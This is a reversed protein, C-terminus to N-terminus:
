QPLTSLRADEVYLEAITRAVAVTNATPDNSTRYIGLGTLDMQLLTTKLDAAILRLSGTKEAAPGNNGRVLFDQAWAKWDTFPASVSLVLGPLTVAGNGKPAPQGPVSPLFAVKVVFPDIRVIKNTVLSPITLAFNGGIFAGTTKPLAPISAGSGAVLATTSPRLKIKFPASAKSGTALAPFGIETIGADVFNLRETEKLDLDASVITGSKRTGKKLLTDQVWQWFIRNTGADIQFSIDEYTVASIRKTVTANVGVVETVVTGVPNGGEFGTIAGIITGDLILYNSRATALAAGQATEVDEAQEAPAAQAQALAAEAAAPDIGGLAITGDAQCGALAGLAVALTTMFRNRKM